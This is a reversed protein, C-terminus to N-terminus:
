TISIDAVSKSAGANARFSIYYPGGGMGVEGRCKLKGSDTGDIFITWENDLHFVVYEAAYTTGLRFNTVDQGHVADRTAWESTAPAEGTYIAVSGWM